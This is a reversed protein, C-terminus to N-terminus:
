DGDYGVAIGDHGFKRGFIDLFQEGDVSKEFGFDQLSGNGMEGLRLERFGFGDKGLKFLVELVLIVNVGLFTKISLKM